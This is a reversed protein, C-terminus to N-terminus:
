CCNDSVGLSSVEPIRMKEKLQKVVAGKQKEKCRQSKVRKKTEEKPKGECEDEDPESGDSAMAIRSIKKGKRKKPQEDESAKTEESSSESLALAEAM